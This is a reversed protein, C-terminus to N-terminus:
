DGVQALFQTGRVGIIGTPTKISVADPKVRAIVGSRYDLTGKVLSATFKLQDPTPTYVYEDLTLESKPGLSMLTRDKFAIGMSADAGTRLASGLLVATGPEAKVSQGATSVWAEGVVLKVYGVPENQAQSLLPVTALILGSLIGWPCREHKM